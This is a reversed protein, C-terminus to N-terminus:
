RGELVSLDFKEASVRFDLMEVQVLDLNAQEQADM